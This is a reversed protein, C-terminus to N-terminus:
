VSLEKNPKGVAIATFIVAFVWLVPGAGAPILPVYEPVLVHIIFGMDTVSAIGLNLWFGLRSNKWNLLIAIVSVSIAVFLLNWADQYVRGQVLGPELTAGLEYTAIAANVHLVGWICYLVAGIRYMMM